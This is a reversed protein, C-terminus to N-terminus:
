GFWLLQALYWGLGAGLVAVLVAGAYDAATPLVGATPRAHPMWVVTNESSRDFTEGRVNVSGIISSRPAARLALVLPALGMLVFMIGIVIGTIDGYNIFSQLFSWGLGVFLIPWAWIVLPVGFGQAFVIALLVAFMGGFISLPTFAVVNEPCEVAIEYPGGSACYGGLATVTVATLYLLSFCFAFGFWSVLSGLVRIIPTRRWPWFPPIASESASTM